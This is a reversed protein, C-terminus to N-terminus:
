SQGRCKRDGRLFPSYQRHSAFMKPKQSRCTNSLGNESFLFFYKFLELQFDSSFALLSKLFAKSVMLATCSACEHCVWTPPCHCDRDTLALVGHSSFYTGKCIRTCWHHIQFMSMVLPSLYSFCKTKCGCILYFMAFPQWCLLSQPSGNSSWPLDPFFISVRLILVLPPFGRSSPIVMLKPIVAASLLLILFPNTLGSFSCLSCRLSPFIPQLDMTKARRDAVPHGQPPWLCREVCWSIHQQVKPIPHPLHM